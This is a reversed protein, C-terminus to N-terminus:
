KKRIKLDTQNGYIFKVIQIFSMEYKDRTYFYMMFTLILKFMVPRFPYPVFLHLHLYTDGIDITQEIHQIKMWGGDPVSM